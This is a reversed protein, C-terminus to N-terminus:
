FEVVRKNKFRGVGVDNYYVGRGVLSVWIEKLRWYGVLGLVYVNYWVM